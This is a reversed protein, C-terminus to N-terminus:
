GRHGGGGSQAAGGQSGVVLTKEDGSRPVATATEDGPTPATTDHEDSSTSVSTNPIEDQSLKMRKSAASVELERQIWQDLQWIQEQM